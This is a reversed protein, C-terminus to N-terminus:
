PLQGFLLSVGNSLHYILHSVVTCCPFLYVISHHRLQPRPAVFNGVIEPFATGKGPDHAM